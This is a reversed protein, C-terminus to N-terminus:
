HPTVVTAYIVSDSNEGSTSWSDQAARSSNTHHKTNKPKITVTSYLVEEEYSMSGHPHSNRPSASLITLPASSPSTLINAYVADSPDETASSQSRSLGSDFVPQKEGANSRRKRRFLLLVIVLTVCLCVGIGALVPISPSSKQKEAMSLLVETSNNEGVSNRVLCLYLGTHSAEMSPLFLTQGSGVQTMSSSSAAMKYWSYSDVPPNADSSCTLSVSSGELVHEPVVSVSTNMPQYHVDLLVDTSNFLGSGGWTIDNSAQCHYRGSDGLQVESITHKQRSSILQGDKYLSYGTEEVPPNADSSCSFTLTDGKIVDGSPSVSLTVKKPAYRVDLAVSASRATEQGKAACHYRGADERSAQFESGSVPQGDRFWVFKTTQPCGSQCILRVDEGETVTSPQVAATLGRVFLYSYTESTWRDSRTEFSFYYAGEDAFQVNNIRLDCDGQYNGVYNFHPPSLAVLSRGNYRLQLKSWSVSTVTHGSPYSYDCKLIASTGKLACQHELTVGWDGSWVGPLIVLITLILSEM